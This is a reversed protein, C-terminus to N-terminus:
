RWAAPVILVPCPPHAAFDHSVSSLFGSPGRHHREGLVLLSAGRAAARLETGPDGEVVDATLDVPLQGAAQRESLLAAVEDALWACLQKYRVREGSNAEAPPAGQAVPVQWVHIVRLALGHRSAEVAAVRLAALSAASDEVGVVVNGTMTRGGAGVAGGASHQSCTIM